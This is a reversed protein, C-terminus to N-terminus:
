MIWIPWRAMPFTPASCASPLSICRVCTMPIAYPFPPLPPWRKMMASWRYLLCAATSFRRRTTPARPWLRTASPWRETMYIRTMSPSSSSWIWRPPSSAASCAAGFTVTAEWGSAQWILAAGAAALALAYLISHPIPM